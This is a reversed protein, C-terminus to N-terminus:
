NECHWMIDYTAQLSDDLNNAEIKAEIKCNGICFFFFPEFTSGFMAAVSAVFM